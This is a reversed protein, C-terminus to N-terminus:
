KIMRERWEREWKKALVSREVRFEASSIEGILGSLKYKIDSLIREAESAETEPIGAERLLMRLEAVRGLLAEAKPQAGELYRVLDELETITQRVWAELEKDSKKTFREIFKGPYWSM